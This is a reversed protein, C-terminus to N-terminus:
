SFHNVGGRWLRGEPVQLSRYPRGQVEELSCLRSERLQEEYPRHELGMVVNTARTQVSELAEIDKKYHPVWFKVSYELHLRM